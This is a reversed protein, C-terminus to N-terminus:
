AYTIQFQGHLGDGVSMAPVAHGAENVGVAGLGMVSKLSVVGGPLPQIYFECHRGGPGFSLYGNPGICLFREPHAVSQASARSTLVFRLPM